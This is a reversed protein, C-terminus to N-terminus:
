RKLCYGWVLLPFWVGTAAVLYGLRGRGKKRSLIWPIWFVPSLLGIELLLNAYLYSNHLDLKGASPLVGFPLRFPHTAFPWFWPNPHVGVLSDLLLHSFSAALIQVSKLRMEGAKMAWLVALTAVCVVAAFAISHTYRIGPKIDWIWLMPYDVDPLVAVFMLWSTWVHGSPLGINVAGLRSASYGALVHGILSSM